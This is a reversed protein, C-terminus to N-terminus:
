RGSGVVVSGDRSVGAADTLSWGTLVTVHATGLWAAVSQMGTLQTWRFAQSSSDSTYASGVVTSGDSSVASAYNNTFGLTGLDTLNGGNWRFAHNAANNTTNASGM